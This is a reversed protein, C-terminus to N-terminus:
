SGFLHRFRGIDSFGCRTETNPSRQKEVTGIQSPQIGPKCALDVLPPLPDVIERGRGLKEGDVLTRGLRICDGWFRDNRASDIRNGNSRAISAALSSLHANCPADGALWRRDLTGHSQPGAVELLDTFVPQLIGRSKPLEFVLCADHEPEYIGLSRIDTDGDGIRSRRFVFM